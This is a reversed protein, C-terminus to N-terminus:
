HLYLEIYYVAVGSCDVKHEVVACKEKNIILYNYYCLLLRQIRQQRTSLNMM